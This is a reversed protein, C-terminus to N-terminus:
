ELVNKFVNYTCKPHNENYVAVYVKKFVGAVGGNEPPTTILKKVIGAIAEPPNNFGGCGIASLVVADRNHRYAAQFVTALRLFTIQYDTPLLQTGNLIVPNKVAYAGIVDISVPTKLKKYGTRLSDYYFIVDRTYTVSTRKLPYIDAPVKALYDSRRVLDEELSGTLHPFGGRVTPNCPNLIAVSYGNSQLGAAVDVIDSPIVKVDTCGLQTNVLKFNPDYHHTSCYDLSKNTSIIEQILQFQSNPTPM